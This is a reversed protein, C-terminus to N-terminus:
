RCEVVDSLKSVGNENFAEIASYYVQGATLARLEISNGQDAFLQYTQYLKDKGIGWLINCGVVDRGQEWTILANRPDISRQVRLNSPTKPPAGFGTGFVRFDSIALNPSAVYVHEYMIYRTRVPAPLEIYANPRDRKEHTIDAILEWNSGDSSDYIRFQTYVSSDNVFIDSHYDTYNVQLANVECENQLDICLWEGSTSSRAVWFTRPNEDTVNAPPFSDQASSSTCRKHYSLLMWGAFLEDRNEWKGSPLRQPFDGFRTNVYMLGDKDFGAPFMVVRREFNWNVGVWPTGTNWYNGFNDRFTNGHGAGTM